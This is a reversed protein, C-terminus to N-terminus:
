HNSSFIHICVQKNIITCPHVIIVSFSSYSVLWSFKVLNETLNDDSTNTLSEYVFFINGTSILFSTFLILLIQPSYITNLLYSAKYLLQYLTILKELQRSKQFSNKSLATDHLVNQIMKFGGCVFLVLRKFQVTVIFLILMSSYYTVIKSYTYWTKPRMVIHQCSIAIIHAFYIMDIPYVIRYTWPLGNERLSREVQLLCLVMQKWSRHHWTTCFLGIVLAVKVSIQEVCYGLYILPSAMHSNSPWMLLLGAQYTLIGLAAISFFLRWRCLVFSDEKFRFPFVAACSPIRCIERMTDVCGVCRVVLANM